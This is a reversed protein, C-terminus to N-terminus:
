MLMRRMRRVSRLAIVTKREGELWSDIRKAHKRVYDVKHSRADKRKLGVVDCGYVKFPCDVEGEPCEEDHHSKLQSCKIEEKCHECDVSRHTCVRYHEELDDRKRCARVFM